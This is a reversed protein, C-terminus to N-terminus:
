NHWLVKCFKSLFIWLVLVNKFLNTSYSGFKSISVVMDRILDAKKIPDNKSGENFSFSQITYIKNWGSVSSPRWLIDKLLVIPWDGDPFSCVKVNMGEELILDIGRISADLLM